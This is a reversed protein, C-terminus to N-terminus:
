KRDGSGEQVKGDVKFRVPLEKTKAAVIHFPATLAQLTIGGPAPSKTQVSVLVQDKEEEVREISISFGGTNRQGMGVFLVTEEEFNVKPLPPVPTRRVSHKEWVKAWQTENTIVLRAPENIGSFGGKAIERLEIPGAMVGLTAWVVGFIWIARM